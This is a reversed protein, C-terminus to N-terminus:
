PYCPADFPLFRFIWTKLSLPAIGSIMIHFTSCFYLPVCHLIGQNWKNNFIISERSLLFLVYEQIILQFGTVMLTLLFAYIGVVIMNGGTLQENSSFSLTIGM